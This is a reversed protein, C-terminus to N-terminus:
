LREMIKTIIRGTTERPNEVKEMFDWLKNTELFLKELPDSTQSLKSKAKADCRKMSTFGIYLWDFRDRDPHSLLFANLAKLNQLNPVIPASENLSVGQASAGSGGLSTTAILFGAFGSLLTTSSWIPKM